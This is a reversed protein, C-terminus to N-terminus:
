RSVNNFFYKVLEKEDGKAVVMRYIQAFGECGKPWRPPSLSFLPDPFQRVWVQAVWKEDLAPLAAHLTAEDRRGDTLGPCFLLCRGKRPTCAYGLKSFSTEGGRAVDNLYVLVTAVRQGGQALFAASAESSDLPPCDNHESYEQGGEYRTIQVPELHRSDRGTLHVIRDVLGRCIPDNAMLASSSSTRRAGAGSKRLSNDDNGILSRVLSPKGARILADCERASLFDDCTWVPPDNHVRKWQAEHQPHRFNFQARCSSDVPLHAAPPSRCPETYRLVMESLTGFEAASLDSGLPPKRSLPQATRLPRAAHERQQQPQPQPQSQSPAAPKPARRGGGGEGHHRWSTRERSARRAQLPASFM